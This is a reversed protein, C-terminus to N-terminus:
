HLRGAERAEEARRLDRAAIEAEMEGRLDRVEALQAMARMLKVAM